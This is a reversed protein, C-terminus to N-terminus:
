PTETPAAPRRNELMREREGPEALHNRHMRLAGAILARRIEEEYDGGEGRSASIAMFACLNGVPHDYEEIARAAQEEDLGLFFALEHLAETLAEFPSLEYCGVVGRVEALKERLEEIHSCCDSGLDGGESEPRIEWALQGIVDPPAKAKLARIRKRAADNTTM